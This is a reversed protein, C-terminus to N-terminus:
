LNVPGTVGWAVAVFSGRASVTPHANASGAVGLQRIAAPVGTGPGQAIAVGWGAALAFLWAAAGRM